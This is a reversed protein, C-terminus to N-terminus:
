KPIIRMMEEYIREAGDLVANKILNESMQARKREDALLEKACNYLRVPAVDKEEMVVAGGINRLESANKFQHNDTVNPSPVIIAPV